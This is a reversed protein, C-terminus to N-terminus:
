RKRHRRNAATTQTMDLAGDMLLAFMLQRTAAEVNGGGKAAELLLKAAHQWYERLAHKNPLEIMYGRADRLTRLTQPEPKAVAIPHALLKRWSM